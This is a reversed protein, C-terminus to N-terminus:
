CSTYMLAEHGNFSFSRSCTLFGVFEDKKHFYMEFHLILIFLVYLIDILNIQMWMKTKSM